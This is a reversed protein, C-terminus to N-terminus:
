GLFHRLGTLGEWTIDLTSIPVPLIWLQFRYINEQFWRSITIIPLKLLKLIQIRVDKKIKIPYLIQEGYTQPIFEDVGYNSPMKSQPLYFTGFLLDILPFGSFNKNHAVQEKSHHWHHFEPTAIIWRLIPVRLSTNAHNFLTLIAGFILYQGFTEKTFGLLFLPMGVAVNAIIMELPHFRVSALWDLETSSHHIVHFNWLWPLTHELRHIIYFSLEAILFAEIFQLWSPQSTVGEQLSSSVLPHLLIFLVVAIIYSSLKM